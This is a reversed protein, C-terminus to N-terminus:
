TQKHKNGKSHLSKLLANYIHRPEGPKLLFNVWTKISCSFIQTLTLAFHAGGPKKTKDLTIYSRDSISSLRHLM